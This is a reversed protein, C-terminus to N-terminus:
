FLREDIPFNTQIDISIQIDLRLNDIFERLSSLIKYDLRSKMTGSQCQGPRKDNVVQLLTENREMDEPLRDSLDQYIEELEIVLKKLYLVMTVEGM